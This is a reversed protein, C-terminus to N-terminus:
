TREQHAGRVESPKRKTEHKIVVKIIAPKRKHNEEWEQWTAEMEKQREVAYIEDNTYEWDELLWDM